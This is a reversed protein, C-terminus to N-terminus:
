SFGYDSIGSFVIEVTVIALLIGLGGLRPTSTVHVTQIKQFSKDVLGFNKSLFLILSYFYSLVCTILMAQFKVSLYQMKILINLKAKRIM